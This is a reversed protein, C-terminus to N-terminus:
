IVVHPMGGGWPKYSKKYSETKTNRDPTTQRLKEEIDRINSTYQLLTGERMHRIKMEKERSVNTYDIKESQKERM